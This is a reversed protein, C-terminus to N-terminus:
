FSIFVFSKNQSLSRLLYSFTRSSLLLCFTIYVYKKLPQFQLRSCELSTAATSFSDMKAVFSWRQLLTTRPAAIISLISAQSSNSFLPISQLNFIEGMGVKFYVHWRASVSLFVGTNEELFFYLSSGASFCFTAMNQWKTSRWPFDVEQIRWGVLKMYM